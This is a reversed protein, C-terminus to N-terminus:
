VRPNVFYVIYVIAKLAINIAFSKSQDEFVKMSVSESFM